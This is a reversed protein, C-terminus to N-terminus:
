LREALELLLWFTFFMILAIFGLGLFCGSLCSAANPRPEEFARDFEREWQTEFHTKM